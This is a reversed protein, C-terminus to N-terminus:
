VHMKWHSLDQEILDEFNDIFNNIIIIDRDHFTLTKTYTTKNIYMPQLQVSPIELFNTIKDLVAQPDKKINDYLLIMTNAPLRKMIPVYDFYQLFTSIFISDDIDSKWFNYLSNAYSYPDRFIVSRHTAVSDLLALQYSDLQWLNTNFNVSFDQEAFYNQYVGNHVIQISPEKESNFRLNKFLWSTATKATGYNIYHKFRM